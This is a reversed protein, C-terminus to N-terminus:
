DKSPPGGSPCPARAAATATPTTPRLPFEITGAPASRRATRSRRCSDTSGVNRSRGSRLPLRRRHLARACRRARIATRRHGRRRRQRGSRSRRHRSHRRSTGGRPLRRHRRQFTRRPRTDERRTRPHPRPTGPTPPRSRSRLSSCRHAASGWRDRASHRARISRSRQSRPGPHARLPTHPRRAIDRPGSRRPRTSCCGSRLHTHCSRCRCRCRSRHPPRRFDKRRARRRCRCRSWSDM